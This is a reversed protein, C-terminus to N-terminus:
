RNHAFKQSDFQFCLGLQFSWFAVCQIPPKPYGYRNTLRTWILLAGRFAERVSFSPHLMGRLADTSLKLVFRETM